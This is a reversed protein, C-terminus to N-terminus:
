PSPKSPGLRAAPQRYFIKAKSGTSHFATKWSTVMRSMACRTSQCLPLASGDGLLALGRLITELLTAGSTWGQWCAAHLAFDVAATDMSGGLVFCWKNCGEQAPAEDRAVSSVLRELDVELPRILEFHKFRTVVHEQVEGALCPRTTLHTLAACALNARATGLGGVAPM